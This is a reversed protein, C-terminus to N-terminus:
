PEFYYNHEGNPCEERLLAVCRRVSADSTGYSETEHGCRRCTGCVSEVPTYDGELEVIRHRLPGEGVCGDEDGRNRKCCQL